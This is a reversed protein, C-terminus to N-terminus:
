RVGYRAMEQAIDAQIVTAAAIDAGGGAADGKRRRAIGRGFLAHASQGSRLTADYDAIAADFRGAKLHVLGRNHLALANNPQLRLSEQCDALAQALQGVIARSRCRNTFASANAPELRIAQDYDQIAREHQHQRSYVAARSAFTAAVAPNLRISQDYDQIAREYQSKRAYSLGRNYFARAYSPNLRIAQDFDEIARDLEGKRGYASGRNNFIIAQNQPSEGGADILATCGGISRDPNAADGCRTRNEERTQAAAPAALLCAALAAVLTWRSTM